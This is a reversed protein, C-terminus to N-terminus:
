DPIKRSLIWAQIKAKEVEFSHIGPSSIIPHPHRLSHFEPKFYTLSTLTPSAVKDRLKKEWFDMIKPKILSKFQQKTLSMALLALPVPISYISCTTALHTFWSLSLLPATSSTSIALRHLINHKGFRSIMSLLSLYRTHLIGLVPLSGGLFSVVSSPTKSYLRLASDKFKKHHTEIAIIETHM